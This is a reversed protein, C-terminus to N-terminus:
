RRELGPVSGWFMSYTFFGYYDPSDLIFAPSDPSTLARFLALDDSTLESDVSPWRMEILCILAQRLKASLPAAFTQTFTDTCLHVLGAARLSGLARLYHSQPNSNGTFPAIGSSTANLRAELVPYGPLLLQSSYMLIAVTGGPRVVRAMERMAQIGLVPNYGVCDSSWAWDFSANEFPLSGADGLEFSTRDSIASSLAARRAHEILDRSIDMGTVKGATGVAEALRFTNSGIGCGVDLGRSGHPLRM